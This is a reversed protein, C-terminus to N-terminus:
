RACRAARLLDNARSQSGCERAFASFAADFAKRAAKAAEGAADEADYLADSDPDAALAAKAVQRAAETRTQEDELALLKEITTANTM